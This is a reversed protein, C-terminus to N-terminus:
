TTPAGEGPKTPEMKLIDNARNFYNFLGIAATLEVIEGEDFHQRLDSWMEDTFDHPRTTEIEALRLAAKEASTFDSRKEFDALNNIQDDTWGLRRAL